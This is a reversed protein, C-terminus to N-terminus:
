LQDGAGGTGDGSFVCSYSSITDTEHTNHRQNYGPWGVVRIHLFGVMASRRKSTLKTKNPRICLAIDDSAKKNPADMIDTLIQGRDNLSPM